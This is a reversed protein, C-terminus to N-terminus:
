IDQINSSKNRSKNRVRTNQQQKHWHSNLLAPGNGNIQPNEWEGEKIEGVKRQVILFSIQFPELIFWKNINTKHGLMQNGCCLNQTCKLFDIQSQQRGIFFTWKSVLGSAALDLTYSALTRKHGLCSCWHMAPVHFPFYSQVDSSCAYAALCPPDAQRKMPALGSGGLRVWEQLVASDWERTLEGLGAGVLVCVGLLLNRAQSKNEEKDRKKGSQRHLESKVPGKQQQIFATTLTRHENKM